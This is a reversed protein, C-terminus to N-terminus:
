VKHLFKRLPCKNKQCLWVFIEGITKQIHAVRRPYEWPYHFYYVLFAIEKPTMQYSKYLRYIAVKRRLGRTGRIIIAEKELKLKLKDFDKEGLRSAVNALLLDDIM